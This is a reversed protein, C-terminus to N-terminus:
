DQHFADWGKEHMQQRLEFLEKEMKMLTERSTKPNRAAECYDFQKDHIKKRLPMTEDLFKNYKEPDVTWQGGGMGFRRGHGRGYEGMMGYGMGYGGMMGSGMGYGMMGSGMGYGGMMGPGMGYGMMGPGMGYGGMMGPGMGYGMMGPGMGYGGMMGYGMGYPYYQESQSTGETSKSDMMGPGMQALCPGASLVVGAVCILLAKKM